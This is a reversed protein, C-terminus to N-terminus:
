RRIGPYATVFRPFEEGWRVIWVTMLFLERGAPGRLTASVLYKRGYRSRGAFLAEASTAIALLDAQLLEWSAGRYGSREFVMAKARGDPHDHSLLYDRIKPPDVVAQAANPLLM